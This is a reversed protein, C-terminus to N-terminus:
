PEGTRASALTAPNAVYQGCQPCPGGAPQGALERQADREAILEDHAAGCLEDPNGGFHRIVQRWVDDLSRRHVNQLPRGAVEANWRGVAWEVATGGGLWDAIRRLDAAMETQTTM